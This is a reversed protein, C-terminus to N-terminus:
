CCADIASPPRESLTFGMNLAAAKQHERQFRSISCNMYHLAKAIPQVLCRLVDAMCPSIEVFHLLQEIDYVSQSGDHTLYLISELDMTLAEFFLKERGPLISKLLITNKWLDQCPYIRSLTGLLSHEIQWMYPIQVHVGPGSKAVSPRLRYTVFHTDFPTSCPVHISIVGMEELYRQYLRRSRRTLGLLPSPQPFVSIPSTVELEICSHRAILPALDNSHLIADYDVPMVHNRRGM